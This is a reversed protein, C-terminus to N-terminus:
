GVSSVAADQGGLVRPCGMLHCAKLRAETITAPQSNPQPPQATERGHRESPDGTVVPMYGAESLTHHTQWLVQQDDDIVLVRARGPGSWRSASFIRSPDTASDDGTEQVAPVTFTFRARLGPGYSEAWIRGGHAEVIGKCVALGFDGGGAAPDGDGGDSRSFRSFLRQLHAGSAGGGQDSVSVAVHMDDPAATVAIASSAPSRRSANSLLSGLVSAAAGRISTLPTLLEHSVMGLFEARTRELEQLPTMDQVTVVLSEVQGGESRIPTANILTTLTSGDPFHVVTQESRVTRGGALAQEVSIENLPTEQQGARRFMLTGLMQELPRGTVRLDGAM